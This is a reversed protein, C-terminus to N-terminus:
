YIFHFIKGDELTTINVPKSSKSKGAVNIAIAECDYTTFSTLNPVKIEVMKGNTHNGIITSSNATGNVPDYGIGKFETYHCNVVVTKM